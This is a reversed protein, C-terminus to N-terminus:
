MFSFLLHEAQVPSPRHRHRHRLQHRFALYTSCSIVYLYAPVYILRFTPLGSHLYALVYTLRFTPLGSYLYAPVYTLRFTPLGYM